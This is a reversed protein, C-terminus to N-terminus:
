SGYARAATRVLPDIAPRTHNKRPGRTVRVTSDDLLPYLDPPAVFVRSPGLKEEDVANAVPIRAHRQLVNPLRGVSTPGTHLVVLM